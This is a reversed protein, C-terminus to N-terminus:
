GVSLPHAIVMTGTWAGEVLKHLYREKQAPTGCLHLAEIAGRTLLPCLGFAMNAAHWMEEVAASVVAPVGQGGYEPDCSLANWGGAVYRAYADAFGDPTAVAGDHWRAGQQDGSQNLPALVERAFKAAEDLVADVLEPGISECGPLAAVRDLGILEDLVFRMDRLPANYTM